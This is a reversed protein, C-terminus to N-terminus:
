LHFQEYSIAPTGGEFTWQWSTPNGESLDTFAIAAGGMVVTNSAIFDASLLEEQTLFTWMFDTESRFLM